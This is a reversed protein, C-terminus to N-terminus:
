GASTTVYRMDPLSRNSPSNQGSLRETSKAAVPGTLAPRTRRTRGRSAARCILPSAGWPACRPATIAPRALLAQAPVKIAELPSLNRGASIKDGTQM